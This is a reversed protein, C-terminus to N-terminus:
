KKVEPQTAANLATQSNAWGKVVSELEKANTPAGGTGGSPTPQKIFGQNGLERQLETYDNEIEALVSDIQEESEIVRGKALQVPIKKEKLKDNLRQTLTAQQDKRQFQALQEQMSRLTKMIESDNENQNQNQNGENQNENSGKNSKEFSKKAESVRRDGERQLLGAFETIPIPMADISDIAAQIGTEDSTSEALKAAVLELMAIPLGAYKKRLEALIKAKLM